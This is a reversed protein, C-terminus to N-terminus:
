LRRGGLWAVKRERAAARLAMVAKLAPEVDENPARCWLTVRLTTGFATTVATIVEAGAAETDEGTRGALGGVEM